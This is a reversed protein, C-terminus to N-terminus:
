SYFLVSAVIQLLFLSRSGDVTFCVSMFRDVTFCVSGFGDITFFVSMFGDVTFCFPLWLRYFM